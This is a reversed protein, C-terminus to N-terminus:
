RVDEAFMRDEDLAAAEDAAMAAAESARQEDPRFLPKSGQQSSGGSVSRRRSSVLAQSLRRSGQSGRMNSTSDERHM